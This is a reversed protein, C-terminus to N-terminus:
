QNWALSSHIVDYQHLDKNPLEAFFHNAKVVCKTGNSGKGPRLPFRVSKSSPPAPSVSETHITMQGIQQEVQSPEFQQSSSAESMASQHTVGAYHPVPTAQHLDPTHPGSPGGYSPGSDSGNGGGGRGRGFQQAYGARGRGQYEPPAGYQQQSIGRGRGGGYGGRGGQPGWGRGGQSGGRGTAHPLSLDSREATHHPGQSIGGSDQTESSEGGSPAETRRKRVMIHAAFLFFKLLNKSSLLFIACAKNLM